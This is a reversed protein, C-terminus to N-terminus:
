VTVPHQGYFPIVQRWDSIKERQLREYGLQLLSSTTEALGVGSDLVIKVLPQSWHSQKLNWDSASLVTDELKLTLSEGTWHYVAGYVAGRKAPMTIALDTATKHTEVISESPPGSATVRHHAVAALASIGLLPIDLQQALTRATAVGIRTGTFGGPGICVAIFTLEQWRQPPLFGQLLAHLQSSLDRGLQWTQQRHITEFDSIALGLEPTSTHLALGLM